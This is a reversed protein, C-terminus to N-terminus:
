NPPSAFIRTATCFTCDVPVHLFAAAIPSSSPPLHPFSLNLSFFLADILFYFRFLNFSHISSIGHPLPQFLILLILLISISLFAILFPFYSVRTFFISKACNPTFILSLSLRDSCLLLPLTYHCEPHSQGFFSLLLAERSIQCKM